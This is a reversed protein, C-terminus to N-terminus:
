FIIECFNNTETTSDKINIEKIRDKHYPEEIGNLVNEISKAFHYIGAPPVANGIQKKVQLHSGLFIYDDPFGQIRARERNTLQRNEEYHYGMTGGGGVALMTYSPKNRDLRRYTNNYPNKRPLAYKTHQFYKFNGGEPILKLREYDLKTPEKIIHNPDNLNINKFAELVTVYNDKNNTIIPPMFKTKIDKRIGIFITRERLQPVGFNAFNVLFIKLNYGSDEFRKKIIKIAEGKNASLIGKVNEAM